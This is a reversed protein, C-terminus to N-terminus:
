LFILSSSGKESGVLAKRGLAVLLSDFEMSSLSIENQVSSASQPNKQVLQPIKPAQTSTQRNKSAQPNKSAKAKKPAPPEKSQDM